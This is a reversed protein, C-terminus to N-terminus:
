EEIERREFRDAEDDGFPEAGAGIPPPQNSCFRCDGVLDDLDDLTKAEGVDHVLARCNQGIALLPQEFDRQRKGAARANKEEVFRSGAHRFGFPVLKKGGDRRQRLFHRNQQDLVVHIEYKRKGFANRHQDIARQKHVAHGVFHRAIRPDLRNIETLLEIGSRSAM